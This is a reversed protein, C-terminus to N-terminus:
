VRFGLFRFGLVRFRNGATLSGSALALLVTARTRTRDAVVAGALWSIEISRPCKLGLM